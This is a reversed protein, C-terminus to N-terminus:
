QAIDHVLVSTYNPKKISLSSELRAEVDEGNQM